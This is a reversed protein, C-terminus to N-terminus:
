GCFADVIDLMLKQLKDLDIGVEANGCLAELVSDTWADFANEIAKKESDKLTPGQSNDEKQNLQNKLHSKAQAMSKRLEQCGKNKVEPTPGGEDGVTTSKKIMDKIWDKKSCVLSKMTDIMDATAKMVKKLSDNSPTSVEIGICLKGNYDGSIRKSGPMWSYIKRSGPIYAFLILLVIIIILFVLTTIM